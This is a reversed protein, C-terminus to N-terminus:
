PPLGLSTRMRPWPLPRGGWGRTSEFESRGDRPWLTLLDPLPAQSCGPPRTKMSVSVPRRAVHLWIRFTYVSSVKWAIREFGDNADSEWGGQLGRLLELGEHCGAAGGRRRAGLLEIGMARSVTHGRHCPHRVRTLAGPQGFPRAGVAWPQLLGM